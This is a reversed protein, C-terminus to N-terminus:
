SLSSATELTSATAIIRRRGNLPDLNDELAELEDELDGSRKFRWAVDVASALVVSDVSEAVVVSICSPEPM